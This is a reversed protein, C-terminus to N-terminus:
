VTQRGREMFAIFAAKPIKTRSKIRIIPFGLEEPCQRATVRILQPDCGIVEAVIAPTLTEEPYDRLEELTM